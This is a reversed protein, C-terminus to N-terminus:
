YTSQIIPANPKYAKDKNSEEIWPGFSHAINQQIPRAVEIEANVNRRRIWPVPHTNGRVFVTRMHSTGM